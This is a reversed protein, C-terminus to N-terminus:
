IVFKALRNQIAALFGFRMSFFNDLVASFTLFSKNSGKWNGIKRFKVVQFQNSVENTNQCTSFNRKKHCVIGHGSLEVSVM